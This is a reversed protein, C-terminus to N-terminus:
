IFFDRERGVGWSEGVSKMGGKLGKRKKQGLDKNM